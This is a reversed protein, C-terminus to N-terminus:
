SFWWRTISLIIICFIPISDSLFLSFRIFFIFLFVMVRLFIPILSSSCTVSPSVNIFDRRWPLRSPHLCLSTRLIFLFAQYFPPTLPESTYKACFAFMVNSSLLIIFTFHIHLCRAIFRYNSLSSCTSLPRFTITQHLRLYLFGYADLNDPPFFCSWPQFKSILPHHIRFLLLRFLSSANFISIYEGERM